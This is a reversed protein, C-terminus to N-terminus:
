HKSKEVVMVLDGGTMQVIPIRRLLREKARFRAIPGRLLFQPFFFERGRLERFRAPKGGIMRRYDQVSFDWHYTSANHWTNEHVVKKQLVRDDILSVALLLLEIPNINRVRHANPSQVVLCGGPRLVRVFEGMATWPDTLHELTETCFLFDVSEDALPLCAGDGQLATKTPLKNLFERLLLGSVEVGIFDADLGIGFEHCAQGDNAGVDVVVRPPPSISRFLDLIELYREAVQPKWHDESVVVGAAEWELRACDAMTQQAIGKEAYARDVAEYDAVTRLRLPNAEYGALIRARRARFVIWDIAIMLTVVLVLWPIRFVFGVGLLLYLPYFYRPASILGYNAKRDRLRTAGSERWDKMSLLTPDITRESTGPLLCLVGAHAPYVISCRACRLTESEVHLPGKCAPCAVAAHLLTPPM